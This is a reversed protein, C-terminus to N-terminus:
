YLDTFDCKFDMADHRGGMQRIPVGGSPIPYFPRSGAHRICLLRSHGTPHRDAMTASPM